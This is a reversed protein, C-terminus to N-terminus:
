EPKLKGPGGTIARQCGEEPMIDATDRDDGDGTNFTDTHWEVIRNGDGLEIAGLANCLRDYAEEPTNVGSITITVNHFQVDM